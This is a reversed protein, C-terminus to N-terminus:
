GGPPRRKPAPTRAGRGRDELLYEVIDRKMRLPPPLPVEQVFRYIGIPPRVRIPGEEWDYPVLRAIPKRGRHIVITEGLLVRCRLDDIRERLDEVRVTKMRTLYGRNRGQGPRGGRERAPKKM